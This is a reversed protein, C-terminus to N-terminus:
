LLEGLADQTSFLAVNGRANCAYGDFEGGM